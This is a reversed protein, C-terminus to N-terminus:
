YVLKATQELELYENHMYTSPLHSQSDDTPWLQQMELEWSQM